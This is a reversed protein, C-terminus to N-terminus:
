ISRHVYHVHLIIALGKINVNSVCKDVQDVIKKMDAITMHEMFKRKSIITKLPKVKATLNPCLSFQNM